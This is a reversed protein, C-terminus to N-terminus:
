AVPKLPTPELKAKAYICVKVNAWPVLLEFYNKQGQNFPGASAVRIFLGDKDHLMTLDLTKGPTPLVEGLTGIGPVHLDSHFRALAVEKM